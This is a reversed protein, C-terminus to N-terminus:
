LGNPFRWNLSNDTKYLNRLYAEFQAPTVKQNSNIWATVTDEMHRHWTQYGRHAAKDLAQTVFRPDRAKYNNKLLPHKELEVHIRKSIAHHWQGTCVVLPKAKPSPQKGSGPQAGPAQKPQGTSTNPTAAPKAPSTAPKAAPAPTTQGAPKAAPAPTTQGAPPSTGPSNPGLATAALPQADAAKPLRNWNCVVVMLTKAGHCFSIAGNTAIVTGTACLAVGAPAGVGTGGLGVGAADTGAGIGIQVLGSFMEAGAAGLLLERTAPRLRNAEDVM